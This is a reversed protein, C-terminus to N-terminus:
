GFGLIGILRLGRAWFHAAHVKKSVAQTDPPLNPTSPYSHKPRARGGGGGGGRTRCLQIPKAERLWDLTISQSRVVIKFRLIHTPGWGLFGGLDLDLVIPPGHGEKVFRTPCLGSYVYVALPSAGLVCVCRPATGRTLGRPAFGRRYVYVALPSAGLRCRFGRTAECLRLLM